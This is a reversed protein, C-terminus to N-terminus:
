MGEWYSAKDEYGAGLRYYLRYLINPVQTMNDADLEYAKEFKEAADKLIPSVQADRAAQDDLTDDLMLARNYLIRAYDFYAKAFKPDIELAKRFNELAEDTKDANEAINGIIDYLQSRLEVNGEEAAALADNALAYAADYDKKDLERNILVAIFGTNSPYAAHGKTAFEYCADEDGCQQAAQLGYAFYDETLNGYPAMQRLKALAAANDPILLYGIAQNWMIEARITDSDAKPANNALVPNSPLTLYLEWIDCAGKYNHNQWSYLGAQRLNPYKEKIAKVIEKSYKTKTKGKENVVTDLPLATLYYEFGQAFAQSAADAAEAPIQQGMAEALALDQFLSFAAKGAVTWTQAESASEPNALAPQIDALAKAANPTAGKLNHEVDKVVSMQASLSLATVVATALLISKKM